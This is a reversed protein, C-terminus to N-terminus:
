GGYYPPFREPIKALINAVIPLSAKYPPKDPEKDMANDPAKDMANYPAKHPTNDPAKHPTNDSDCGNM